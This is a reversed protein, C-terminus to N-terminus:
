LGQVKVGFTTGFVSRLRERVKHQALYFEEDPVIIHIHETGEISVNIGADRFKEAFAKVACPGTWVKLTV